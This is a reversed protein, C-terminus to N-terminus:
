RTKQFLENEVDEEETVREIWQEKFYIVHVESREEKPEPFDFYNYDFKHTDIKTDRVMITKGCLTWLWDPIKLQGLKPEDKIIGYTKEDIYDLHIMTEEIEERSRVRVKIKHKM